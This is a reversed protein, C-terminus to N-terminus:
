SHEYSAERIYYYLFDASKSLERLQYILKGRASETSDKFDATNLTREIIRIWTPITLTLSSLEADPDYAPMQKIAANEQKKKKSGSPSSQYIRGWQLEHWIESHSLRDKSKDLFCNRLIRLDEQSLKSIDIINEHSVKIEGSLIRLCIVPEHKRIMDLAAAFQSYKLVTGYSIELKVGITIAIARRNNTTRYTIKGTENSSRKSKELQILFKKGIFYKRYEDTLDERILYHDCIWESADLKSDFYMDKTPFDINNKRCIRYRKHGDLLIGHWTCLPHTVGHKKIDEELHRVKEDTSPIHLALFDPDINLKSNNETQQM